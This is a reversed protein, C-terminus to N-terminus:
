SQVVANMGTSYGGVLIAMGVTDGARLKAVSTGNQYKPWSTSSLIISQGPQFSGGSSITTNFSFSSGITSDKFSLFVSYNQPITANGTNLLNMSYVYTGNCSPSAALCLNSLKVSTVSKPGSMSSLSQILYELSGIQNQLNSLQTQLNANENQLSSIELAQYISFAVLLVVIIVLLVKTSTNSPNKQFSGGGADSM